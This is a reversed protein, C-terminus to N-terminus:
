GTEQRRPRGGHTEVGFIEGLHDNLFVREPDMRDRVELFDEWEPYLERLEPARLSHKKGWHPRGGFARLLPEMDAFYAQHDLTANQLLAITMTPRRQANSIMARDPAVTRVLIRWGVRARHRAKVRERVRRFAELSADLPLMYEMEEFRLDRANPIIGYSPGTEETKVTGPPVAGPQDPDPEHGPINLMRVQALDSRPYWYFDVSRHAAILADFNELVWDVHTMVNVRHLQYAPEVRLTLRTLVGLAGLSVQAARLLPDDTDGGADEGFAVAEGRGDILEGGVVTSSLNGLRVGSGHTGTGVAGAIAQYDVDGLNELAVGHVALQAGLEALGTGPLVTARGSDVDAGCVGSFDDLSVLVDETSMLPMSSHGSGVPRVTGGHAATEAVTEALEDVGVPRLWRAPSCSVSGSWNTFRPETM